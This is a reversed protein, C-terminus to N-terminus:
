MSLRLGLTGWWSYSEREHLRSFSESPRGEIERDAENTLNNLQLFTAFRESWQQNLSVDLHFEDGQWIDNHLQGGEFKEWMYSRYNGAIVGSLGFRPNDYTLSLNATHEPSSPLPYDRTKEDDDIGSFDTESYNYTYNANIGFDRLASIGLGSLKQFTSLEFGLVTASGGNFPQFVTYEVGDILERFGQTAIPDQMRKAFVGAGLFGLDSTYREAMLDFNWATIPELNPNGRRIELDAVDVDEVPVLNAFPPRALGRTVAARLQTGPTLRFVGHLSPLVTMYDGDGELATAVQLYDHRTQEVRVGALTTFRDSWDTTNMLYGATIYEDAEYSSPNARPDGPVFAPELTLAGIRPDGIRVDPLGFTGGAITFAAADAPTSRVRTFMRSRNSHTFKGGAKFSSNGTVGLPLTLDVGLTQQAMEVTTPYVVVYDLTLPDNVGAFTSLAGLADIERNSLTGLAPNPRSWQFETIDPWDERGDAWSAELNVTASGVAQEADLKAFALQQERVRNGTFRSEMARRIDYVAMRRIEDENYGDWNVTLGIEGGPAYRYDFNGVLGIRERGVDYDTTRHRSFDPGEDERYRWSEFLSGRETNHYGGAVLVGLKDDLFRQSAAGNVSAIEQGYERIESQQDNWGGGAELTLEPVAGARKLRFDVVGGLADADMDPRLAKTVSIEEILSSQILDLEVSREASRGVSPIRVGNMTLSNLQEGMGRVQVYRGEGQDRAISVGPLRQVTEAANIDPYRDFTEENVVYKLNPSAKQENLAEAQGRTLRGYVQIGELAVADAELVLTLAAIEGAIAQVPVSRSQYGIYRASLTHAGASVRDIRFRGDNDTLASRGVPELRVTAGSLAHGSADTVRGTIVTSQAQQAAGPAPPAAAAHAVAPVASAILLLVTAAAPLAGRIVGRSLSICIQTFM